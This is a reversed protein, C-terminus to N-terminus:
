ATQDPAVTYRTCRGVDSAFFWITECNQFYLVERAGSLICFGVYKM